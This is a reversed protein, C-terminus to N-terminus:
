SKAENKPWHGRASLFEELATILVQTDTPMPRTVDIYSQMAAFLEATAHFAKRPKTHRDIGLQNKSDPNTRRGPKKKSM